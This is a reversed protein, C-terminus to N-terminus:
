GPAHQVRRHFLHARDHAADPVEPRGLLVVERMSDDADAIDNKLSSLPFSMAKPVASGAM